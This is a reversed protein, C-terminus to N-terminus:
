GPNNVAIREYPVDLWRIAQYMPARWGNAATARRFDTNAAPSSTGLAQALKIYGVHIIRTEAAKTGCGSCIFTRM